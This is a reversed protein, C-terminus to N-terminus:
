TEAILSRYGIFAAAIVFLVTLTYMDFGAVKSQADIPGTSDCFWAARFIPM